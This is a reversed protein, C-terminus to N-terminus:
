GNKPSPLKWIYISVSSAIIFLLSKLFIPKAFFIITVSMTVWLIILVRVKLAKPLGKGEQYSKIYPGFWKHTMLWNYFRDSGKAYCWAALLLFPTTPLLPLIIGLIALGVFLSGFLTYIIKM